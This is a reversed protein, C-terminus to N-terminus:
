AVELWGLRLWGLVNIMYIVAHATGIMLLQLKAVAPLAQEQVDDELSKSPPNWPQHFIHQLGEGM